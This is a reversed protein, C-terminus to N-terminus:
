DKIMTNQKSQSLTLEADNIRKELIDNQKQKDKLTNIVDKLLEEVSPQIPSNTTHSKQAIENAAKAISPSVYLKKTWSNKSVKLKLLNPYLIVSYNNEFGEKNDFLM